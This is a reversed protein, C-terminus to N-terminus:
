NTRFTTDKQFLQDYFFCVLRSIEKIYVAFIQDDQKYFAM